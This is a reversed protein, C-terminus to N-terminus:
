DILLAILDDHRGRLRAARQSLRCSVDPGVPRGPASTSGWCPAPPGRHGERGYAHCRISTSPPPPPPTGPDTQSDRRRTANAPRPSRTASPREVLPAARPARPWVARQQETAHFASAFRDSGGKGVHLLRTTALPTVLAATARMSPPVPYTIAEGHQYATRRPRLRDRGRLEADGGDRAAADWADTGCRIRAPGFVDKDLRADVLDEPQEYRHAAAAGVLTAARQDDGDVAAVAALGRLGEFAIPRIVM